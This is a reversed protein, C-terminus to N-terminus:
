INQLFSKNTEDKSSNQRFYGEMVLPRNPRIRRSARPSKIIVLPRYWVELELFTAGVRRRRRRNQSTQKLKQRLKRSCRIYTYLHMWSFQIESFKWIKMPFDKQQQQQQQPWWRGPLSKSIKSWFAVFFCKRDNFYMDKQFWSISVANRTFVLKKCFLM